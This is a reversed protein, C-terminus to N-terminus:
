PHTRCVQMPSLAGHPHLVHPVLVSFLIAMCVCRDCASSAGRPWVSGTCVASPAFGVFVQCVCGALRRQVQPPRMPLSDSAVCVCGRQVVCQPIRNVVELAFKSVLERCYQADASHGAAGDDAMGDGGPGDDDNGDADADADADADTAASELAADNFFDTRSGLYMAVTVVVFPHVPTFTLPPPRLSVWM